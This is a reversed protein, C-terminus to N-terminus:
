GMWGMADRGILGVAHWNYGDAVCEHVGGEEPAVSLTVGEKGNQSTQDVNFIKPYRM